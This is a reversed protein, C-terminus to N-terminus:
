RDRLLIYRNWLLLIQRLVGVSQRRSANCRGLRLMLLWRQVM